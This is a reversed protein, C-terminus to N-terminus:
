SRDRLMSRPRFVFLSVWESKAAYVDPEEWRDLLFGHTDGNRYNGLEFYRRVTSVSCHRTFITSNSGVVDLYVNETINQMNRTTQWPFAGRRGPVCVRIGTRGARTINVFFPYDGRCSSPFESPRIEDCNITSNLRMVRQKLVGTTTANPFAALFYHGGFPKSWPGYQQQFSSTADPQRPRYGSPDWWLYPPTEYRSFSALSNMLDHVVLDEPIRAM